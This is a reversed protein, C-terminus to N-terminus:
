KPGDWYKDRNVLIERYAENLKQYGNRLCPQYHGGLVIDCKVGLMKKLSAKYMQYDYDESVRVGLVAENKNMDVQLFDGTVLVSRGNVEFGYVMSGETHGPVHYCRVSLKDSVPIVDGDQLPQTIPCPTFEKAYAYSITQENGMEIGHADGAGAYIRAGSKQFYHANGAHDFHSHTLFVHSITRNELSLIHMTEKIVALDEQDLGTDFLILRNKEPIDLAYVNQHLGYSNGSLLYISPFILM